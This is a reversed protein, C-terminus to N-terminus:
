GIAFAFVDGRLLAFSPVGHGGWGAAAGDRGGDGVALEGGVAAVGLLGGAGAGLRALSGGGEVGEGVAQAGAETGVGEDALVLAFVELGEGLGEVFFEVGLSGELVEEGLSQGQEGPLHAPGGGGLGGEEVPQQDGAALVLLLLVGAGGAAVGVGGRRGRGGGGFDHGLVGLGGLSVVGPEGEVAVVLGCLPLEVLGQGAVLGELSLLLFVVLVVVNVVDILVGEEVDAGGLPGAFGSSRVFGGFFGVGGVVRGL